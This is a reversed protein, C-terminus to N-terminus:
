KLSNIISKTQKAKKSYKLYSKEWNEYGDEGRHDTFDYKTNLYSLLYDTYKEAGLINVHSGNYYDTKFDIGIEEYKECMDIFEFDRANVYEEISNLIKKRTETIQLPSMIFCIEVDNKDSYDMIDDLMVKTSDSIEIKEKIDLIELDPTQLAEKSAFFRFGKYDDTVHNTAYSLSKFDLDRIRNIYMRIDQKFDRIQNDTLYPMDYKATNDILENRGESYNLSSSVREIHIPLYEKNNNRAVYSYLDVIILKPSQSKLAEDVMPKNMPAPMGPAAFSYSTLGSKKWAYMPSWFRYVTSAGVYVMDLTDDKEAYYGVIAKRDDTVPRLLYCINDFFAGFLTMLILAVIMIVKAIQSLSVTKKDPHAKEMHM